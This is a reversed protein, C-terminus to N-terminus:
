LAPREARRVRHNASTKVDNIARNVRAEQHFQAVRERALACAIHNM